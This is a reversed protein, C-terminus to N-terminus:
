LFRLVLRTKIVLIFSLLTFYGIKFVTFSEQPFSRLGSQKYKANRTKNLKSKIHPVVEDGVRTGVYKGVRSGVYEGVRSGIYEGVDFGDEVGVNCGVVPLNIGNSM